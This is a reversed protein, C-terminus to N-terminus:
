KLYSLLSLAGSVLGLAKLPNAPPADDVAPEVPLEPESWLASGGGAGSAAAASGAADILPMLAEAGVAVAGGAAYAGYVPATTTRFNKDALGPSALIPLAAAAALQVIPNKAARKAENAIPTSVSQLGKDVSKVAQGIVPTVSIAHKLPAAIAQTAKKAKHVTKKIAKGIGDLGAFGDVYDLLRPDVVGVHPQSMSLPSPAGPMQARYALPVYSPSM